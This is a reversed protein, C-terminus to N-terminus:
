QLRKRLCGYNNWVRGLGEGLGERGVEGGWNHICLGKSLQPQAFFLNAIDNNGVYFISIRNRFFLIDAFTGFNQMSLFPVFYYYFGSTM